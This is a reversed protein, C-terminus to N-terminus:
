NVVRGDMKMVSPLYKKLTISGGYIDTITEEKIVKVSYNIQLDFDNYYYFTDRKRSYKITAGFTKFNELVNYLQSRGINLRNAFIEPPGTQQEKILKNTKKIRELHNINNFM